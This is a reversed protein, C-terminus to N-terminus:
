PVGLVSLERYPESIGLAKRASAEMADHLHKDLKGKALLHFFVEKERESAKDEIYRSVLIKYLTEKKM